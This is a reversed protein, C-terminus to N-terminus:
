SEAPRGPFAGSQALRGLGLSVLAAIESPRHTAALRRNEEAQLGNSLAKWGRGGILRTLTDGGTEWAQETTTTGEIQFWSAASPEVARVLEHTVGGFGGALFVPQSAAIALIAEELVGPMLGEYGSRRGGICLRGQTERVAAQRMATLSPGIQAAPLGPPLDTRGAACDIATGDAALCTIRGLVGLDQQANRIEHLSLRRHVSWALVISLPDDRRGYRKVEGVLFSTYGAPALHGCYQLEGGLVLVTRALEGFALRFHDELLGLRPLDPSTSASVGVRINRLTNTPLLDAM